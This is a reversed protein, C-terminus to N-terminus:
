PILNSCTTQATRTAATHQQTLDQIGQTDSMVHRTLCVPGTSPGRWQVVLHIFRYTLLQPLSTGAQSEDEPTLVALQSTAPQETLAAGRSVIVVSQAWPPQHLQTQTQECPQCVLNLKLWFEPYLQLYHDRVGLQRKSNAKGKARRVQVWSNTSKFWKKRFVTWSVPRRAKKSNISHLYLDM